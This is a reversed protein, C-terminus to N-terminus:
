GLALCMKDTLCENRKLVLMVSIVNELKVVALGFLEHYIPMLNPHSV